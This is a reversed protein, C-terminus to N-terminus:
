LEPKWKAPQLVYGAGDRAVHAFGPFHLHMGAVLLRESAAMELTRRRTTIAMAPDTDFLVGVDPRRVQIDPSHIVDGWILLRDKGAGIAYGTHGPTHGPLPVAEIGPMPERETFLRLRSGYPATMQRALTFAPRHAEPARAAQTEDLWFAADVQAVLVDANAFAPKGDSDLLGGLHDPHLHTLLVADIAGPAIGAAVLHEILHGSAPGGLTGYGTDILVTRSPTQVVFVNLAMTLPPTRGAADLMAEADETSINLLMAPDEAISGDSVVTVIAEGVRHRYIGPVQRTPLPSTM